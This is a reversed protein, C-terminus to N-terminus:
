EVTVLHLVPGASRTTTVKAGLDALWQEVADAEKQGGPHGPYCLVSLVGGPRLYTGWALQLAALTTSARTTVSKDAGPLYGLNFVIAATSAAMAGPLHRDMTEHGALHLEVNAGPAEKDLHQRAHLLADHQIDFGHVHGTAGIRQALFVTDHGNGVTADIALDGPKLLGHLHQHVLETLRM